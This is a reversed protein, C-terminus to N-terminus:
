TLLIKLTSLFSHDGGFTCNMVCIRFSFPLEDTGILWADPTGTIEAGTLTYFTM